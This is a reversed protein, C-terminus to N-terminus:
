ERKIGKIIKWIETEKYDIEPPWKIERIKLLIDTVVPKGDNIIKNLHLESCNEFANSSIKMSYNRFIVDQLKTCSEFAKDEIEKVSNPITIKSLGICNGFTRFSIKELNESLIIRHLNSCSDFAESGIEKVSNPITIETLKTCNSFSGELIKELNSPL